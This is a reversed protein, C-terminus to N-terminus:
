PMVGDDLKSIVGEDGVGETVGSRFADDKVRRETRRRKRLEKVFIAPTKSIIRHKTSFEMAAFSEQCPVDELQFIPPFQDVPVTGPGASVALKTPVPRALTASLALESTLM